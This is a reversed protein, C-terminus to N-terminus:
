FTVRFTGRIGWRQTDEYMYNMRHVYEIHFIKFINHIGAVLEVYPKNKDMVHSNYEFSGDERFSGPFYFLESDGYHRELFPNNKDTLTGWLCNIGIYERWKLGRILPIRNLIKGNLDWSIMASAYRDNLFEMNKILNFTYDEMIYSLNAAPYILFPYPVKNWQVGGKLMCDIKGWSNLWFRKYVEAETFNYDYQGGAIGDVGMTHSLGLIPSDFNTPLRRQKTNIYTAGPQYHIGVMAESFTIKNLNLSEDNTPNPLGNMPQYFLHGAGENWERRLQANFRLGNEWERDYLLNFREFYNMHKVTAWKWAVFVNDKDTPVFKDSPSMVDNMYTFTLNNVPYERPLYDKANFSYTVEGLGKWRQDGFGYKVNGRLFIHKNFNATTLASARLRFGEVFNSGIMTNVPGIDVKSPHRIGTEVFNEIFAKSVWLVEKFGKINQIRNIFVDMKGEGETLPTPRQEEWFEEDRMQASSETKTDGKFKFTKEPIPNFDWNSYKVTREVQLKQIWSALKLQVLMKNNTVVQEGTPLPEFDQIIDMQEVFNVDSRSPIGIEARKLRWTSDALVFLSGSFGFDQPNNPTFDLKYCKQKDVHVTDVIFYRYFGIAGDSIPSTFPYQLLRVQNDYIDIDTFCDALMGDAIDGTNLLETVGESREGLIISKETNGDKRYIIRRVKEDVTLPLILKGTEPCTEVHEKLFPFHKFHDDQFVKETFENLATTMKEYKTYSLFDHQHLDSHNKAAIVKRMMDVAPNNKRSYKTKKKSVVEVEALSSAKERMKVNLKQPATIDFVQNDFGMMSFVLKGKRFAIKYKGNLDTQVLTSKDDQYYVYVTPLTEGTGEETVVGQVLQASARLVGLLLCVYLLVTRKM